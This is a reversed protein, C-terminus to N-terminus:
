LKGKIKFTPQGDDVIRMRIGKDNAVKPTERVNVDLNKAEKELNGIGDAKGQEYAFSVLKDINMAGAIARHFGEVDKVYGNDDLFSGLFKSVDSQASKMASPEAPKWKLESEGVKFKFGEFQDSFLKSTQDAFFESRKKNEQEIASSSEVYQKYSKYHEREGEPVFNDASAVPLKYQDKQQDFFKVADKLEKRMKIQKEAIEDEDDLDEDYSFQKMMANLERETLDPDQQKYFERLTVEPKESSWDKQLQIFDELSRGTERKYKNYALAVEDIEEQPTNRKKLLEEFEDLSGIELNKKERIFSLVKEDDLELTTAEPKVEEVIPKDEVIADQKAAVEEEHKEILEQEIEAKSKPEEDVLRMGKIEM